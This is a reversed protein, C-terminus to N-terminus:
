LRRGRLTARKIEPPMYNEDHKVLLEQAMFKQNKSDFQGKAIVGQGERFLDPLLGHYNITLNAIEDSIVFETTLVDIQTISNKLVLGGVRIQRPNSLNVNQLESPSYFFVIQKKFNQIIFVLALVSIVLTTAIFVLRRKKPNNKM